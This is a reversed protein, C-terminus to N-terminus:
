FFDSQEGGMGQTRGRMGVGGISCEDGWGGGSGDRQWMMGREEVGLLM